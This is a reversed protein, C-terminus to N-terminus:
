PDSRLTKRRNHADREWFDLRSVQDFVVPALLFMLILLINEDRPKM